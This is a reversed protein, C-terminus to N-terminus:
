PSSTPKAPPMKPQVRPRWFVNPVSRTNSVGIESLALAGGGGLALGIVKRNHAVNAPPISPDLPGLRLLKTSAAEEGAGAPKSASTDPGAKSGTQAAGKESVGGTSPTQPSTQIAGSPVAPAAEQARAAHAFLLLM